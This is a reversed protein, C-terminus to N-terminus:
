NDKRGIISKSRKALRKKGRKIQIKIKDWNRGGVAGAIAGAIVGVVIPLPM